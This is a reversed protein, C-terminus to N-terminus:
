VSTSFIGNLHTTDTAMYKKTHLGMCFNLDSEYQNVCSHVVFEAKIM